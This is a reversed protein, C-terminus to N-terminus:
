KGATSKAMASVQTATAQAIKFHGAAADWALVGASSSAYITGDLVAFRDITTTSDVNAWSTGGNQSRFIGDWATGAFVTSPHAPDILLSNVTGATLGGVETLGTMVSTWTTGRDTTRYVGSSSGPGNDGGAILMTSPTAPLFAATSVQGAAGSAFRPGLTKFAFSPTMAADGPIAGDGGSTGALDMGGGGDVGAAADPATSGNSCGTTALALAIAAGGLHRGLM